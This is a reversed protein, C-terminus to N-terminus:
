ASPPCGGALRVMQRSYYYASLQQQLLEFPPHQFFAGATLAELMDLLLARWARAIHKSAHTPAFAPVTCHWVRGAYRATVADGARLEPTPQPLPRGARVVTVSAPAPAPATAAGACNLPDYLTLLCEHSM